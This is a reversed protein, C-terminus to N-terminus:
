HTEPTRIALPPRRREGSETLETWEDGLLEALGFREFVREQAFHLALDWGTRFANHQLGVPAMPNFVGNDVLKEREPQATFINLENFLEVAQGRLTRGHEDQAEELPRLGVEAYIGDMLANAAEPSLLGNDTNLISSRLEEFAWRQESRPILHFNPHSDLIDWLSEWFNEETSRKRRPM